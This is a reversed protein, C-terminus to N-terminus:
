PRHRLEQELTHDYVAPDEGANEVPGQASTYVIVQTLM